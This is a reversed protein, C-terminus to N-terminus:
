YGQVDEVMNTVELTESVECVIQSAGCRRLFAYAGDLTGQM